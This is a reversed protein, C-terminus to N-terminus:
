LRFIDLWLLVDQPVTLCAQVWPGWVVVHQQPVNVQELHGCMCTMLGQICKLVAPGGPWFRFLCSTWSELLLNQGGNVLIFIRGSLSWYACSGLFSTPFFLGSASRRQILSLRFLSVFLRTSGESGYFSWLLTTTPNGSICNIQINPTTFIHVIWAFWM